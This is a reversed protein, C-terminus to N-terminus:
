TERKRDFDGPWMKSTQSMIGEVTRVQRADHQGAAESGIAPVAM